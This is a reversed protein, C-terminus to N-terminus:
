AITGVYATATLNVTVTDLVTTTGIKRVSVSLTLTRSITGAASRSATVKPLLSGGAPVQTWVGSTVGTLTGTGGTKTVLFEYASGDAILGGTSTKAWYSSFTSISYDDGASFLRGNSHITLIANAVSVVVSSETRYGATLSTEAINVVTVANSKGVLNSLSIPGSAVGALARVRSDTLSLPLAVGLEAAVQSMSIPLSSPLAM